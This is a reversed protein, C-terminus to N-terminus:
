YEGCFPKVYDPFKRKKVFYFSWAFTALKGAVTSSKKEPPYTFRRRGVYFHYREIRDTGNNKWNAYPMAHHDIFNKGRNRKLFDYIHSNSKIPYDQGSLFFLFDFDFKEEDVAKMGNLTAKVCGISGWRSVERKIFHIKGPPFESFLSIFQKIDSRKDIHIFFASCESDLALVLRKLQLPLHYALIIYAIRM